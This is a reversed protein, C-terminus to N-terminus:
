TVVQMGPPEPEDPAGPVEAQEEAPSDVEGTPMFRGPTAPDPVLRGPGVASLWDAHAATVEPDTMLDRRVLAPNRFPLGPQTEDFDDPLAPAGWPQEPM